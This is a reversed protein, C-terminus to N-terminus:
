RLKNIQEETLGADKMLIKRVMGPAAETSHLALTIPMEGEKRLSLHSGKQRSVEYGARILIDRIEKWKMAGFDTV